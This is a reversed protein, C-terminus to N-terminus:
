NNYIIKNTIKKKLTIKYNNLITQLKERFLDKGNVSEM